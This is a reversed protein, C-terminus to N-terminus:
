LVWNHEVDEEVCRSIFQPPTLPYSLFPLLPCPPFVIFGIRSYFLLFYFLQLSAGEKHQCYTGFEARNSCLLGELVLVCVCM